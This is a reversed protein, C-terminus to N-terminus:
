MKLGHSNKVREDAQKKLREKRNRWYALPDVSETLIAIVDSISFFWKQQEEDWYTRVKQQEFLKINSM